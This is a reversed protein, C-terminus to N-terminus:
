QCHYGLEKKPGSICLSCQGKDVKMQMFMHAALDYNLSNAKFPHENRPMQIEYQLLYPVAGIKALFM